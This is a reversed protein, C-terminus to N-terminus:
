APQFPRWRGDEDLMVAEDSDTFRLITGSRVGTLQSTMMAMDRRMCVYVDHGGARALEARLGAVMAELSGIRSRLEENRAQLMSIEDAQARQKQERDNLADAGAVTHSIRCGPKPCVGARHKQDDM